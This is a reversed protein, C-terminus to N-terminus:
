PRAVLALPILVVLRAGLFAFAAALALRVGGLVVREGAFRAVESGTSAAPAAAAAVLGGFVSDRILRPDAGIDQRRRDRAVFFGLRPLGAAARATRPGGIVAAFLREFRDASAQDFRGPRGRSRWTAHRPDLPPDRASRCRADAG